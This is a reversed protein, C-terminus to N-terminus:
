RGGPRRPCSPRWATLSRRSRRAPPPVATRRLGARHDAGATPGRGCRRPLRRDAGGGRCRRDARFRAPHLLGRAPHDRHRAGAAMVLARGRAVSRMEIGGPPPACASVLAAALALAAGCRGAPDSIPMSMGNPRRVPIPSPASAPRASWSPTNGCRARLRLHDPAAGAMRGQPAGAGRRVAGGVTRGQQRRHHHHRRRPDARDARWPRGGPRCPRRLLRAHRGLVPRRHDAGGERGHGPRLHAATTALMERMGPGGAPGENRIM